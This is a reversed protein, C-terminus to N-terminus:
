DGTKVTIIKNEVEQRDALGLDRAIINANFAGVAAGEYKQTRIIEEIRSIVLSFDKKLTKSHARGGEEIKEEKDGLLSNKFDNFYQSNVDLFICLGGLTYPRATPIEVISILKQNGEKDKIIKPQKLQEQKYWPNKECWRFYEQAAQWLIEPTEFIRDRGHKSRKKWFSNGKPASM